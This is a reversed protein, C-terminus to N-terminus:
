KNKLLAKRSKETYPIKITKGEKLNDDKKNNLKKIDDVKTGFKKALASLSDGSKIKYPIGEKIRKEEEANAAVKKAEESGAALPIRITHNTTLVNPNKLDNIALIDATSVNHEAAIKTLTDGQKIKVVKYSGQKPATDVPPTVVVPTTTTVVNSTATAAGTSPQTIHQTPNATPGPTPTPATQPLTNVVPAPASVPASIPAAPIVPPSALTAAEAPITNDVKGHLIIGGIIILHVLLLGVIIRIITTSNSRDEVLGIESPQMFVRSFFAVFKNQKVKTRALGSNRYTSQPRHQM